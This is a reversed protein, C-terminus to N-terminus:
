PSGIKTGRAAAQLERVGRLAVLAALCTALALGACHALASGVAGLPGILVAAIVLALFAGALSATLYAQPQGAAILYAQAWMIPSLLAFGVVLVLLPKWSAFQWTAFWSLYAFSVGLVLPAGVMGLGAFLLTIRRVFAPLGQRQAAAMRRAFEPLLLLVIPNLAELMLMAMTKALRYHGAEATGGLWAILQVDMERHGIEILGSAYHSALLRMQRARNAPRLRPMRTRVVHGARAALRSIASHAHGWSVLATPLALALVLTEISTGGYLCVGLAFLKLVGGAIAYWAAVHVDGLCRYVALSSFKLYTNALGYCACGAFLGSSISLSFRPLLLAVALCVLFAGLNFRQEITRSWVTCAWASAEHRGLYRALKPTLFEHIRPEFLLYVLKAGSLAVALAGFEAPPRIAAVILVIALETGTGSLTQLLQWASNRRLSFSM